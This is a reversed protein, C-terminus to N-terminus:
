GNILAPILERDLITGMFARKSESNCRHTLVSWAV